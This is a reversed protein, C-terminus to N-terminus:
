KTVGKGNPRKLMRWVAVKSWKGVRKTERDEKNLWRAIAETSLGKAAMQQIRRIWVSETDNTVREGNGKCQGFPIRGRKRQAPETGNLPPPTHLTSTNLKGPQEQREKDAIGKGATTGTSLSVAKLLLKAVRRRREEPSMSKYNTAEEKHSCYNLMLM